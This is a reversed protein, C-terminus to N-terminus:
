RKKIIKAQKQLFIGVKIQNKYPNQKNKGNQYIGYLPFCKKTEGEIPFVCLSM